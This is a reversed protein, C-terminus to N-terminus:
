VNYPQQSSKAIRYSKYYIQKNAIKIPHKNIKKNSIPIATISSWISMMM